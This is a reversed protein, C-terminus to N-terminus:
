PTLVESIEPYIDTTPTLHWFHNIPGHGSGVSLRHSYSIAGHLWASVWGLADALTNGQALRTALAAALSCGTGHTNGTSVKRYPFTATTGTETVVANGAEHGPLHGSKVIVALQEARALDQAQACAAEWSQPAKQRTLVALEHTNPTVVTAFQLFDRLSQESERTLLRDGSTAVMVPDLVVIKQPNDQLWQAVTNILDTSGLMGIKVADIRVDESVADLQSRLFHAPPVEVARVGQTNQAVLATVAGMAYGGAAAISKIDAQLGAGGSPDTGAISLINPITTSM